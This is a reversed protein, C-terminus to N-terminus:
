VRDNRRDDPYHCSVGSLFKGMEALASPGYFDDANIVAFPQDIVGSACLVAHATGWPKARQCPLWREPVETELEQYAFAIEVRLRRGSSM